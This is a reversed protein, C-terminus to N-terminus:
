KTVRYHLYDLLRGDYGVRAAEDSIRVVIDLAEEYSGAIGYVYAPHELYYPQKLFACHIIDLQDSEVAARTICYIFFQGRGHNLRWKVLSHRKVSEGWYM